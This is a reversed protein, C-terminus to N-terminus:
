IRLVVSVHMYVCVCAFRRIQPPVCTLCFCCIFRARQLWHWACARVFCERMHHVGFIHMSVTHVIPVEIIPTGDAVFFITCRTCGIVRSRALVAM